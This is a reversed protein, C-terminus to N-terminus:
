RAQAMESFRSEVSRLVDAVALNEHLFAQLRPALERVFLGIMEILEVILLQNINKNPHMLCYRFFLGDERTVHLAGVPLIKSLASALYALEYLRAEPIEAQLGMYFQLMSSIDSGQQLAPVQSSALVDNLFFLQLIYDPTEAVLPQPATDVMLQEIPNGEGVPLYSALYGSKLLLESLSKLPTEPM